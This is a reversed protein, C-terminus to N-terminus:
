KRESEHLTPLWSASAHEAVSQAVILPVPDFVKQGSAFAMDAASGSVIPQEQIRNEKAIASADGPAIKGFAVTVPFRRM